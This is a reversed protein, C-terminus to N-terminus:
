IQALDSTSDIDKEGGVFPLSIDKGPKFLKKILHKAGEDGNLSLLADWHVADFLAPVGLVNKYASCVLSSHSKRYGTIIANLHETTIAYQDGLVFLIAKAEHHSSRVHQVATRISSSMGQEWHENIIVPLKTGMSDLIEKAYGGLIISSSDTQSEKVVEAIHDILLKGKFRVLQKPHGLRRSGGAALIISIITQKSEM